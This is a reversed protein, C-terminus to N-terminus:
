ETRGTAAHTNRSGIGPHGGRPNRQLYVGDQLPRGQFHETWRDLLEQSFVGTTVNGSVVVALAGKRFMAFKALPLMLENALMVSGTARQNGVGNNWNEPFADDTSLGLFERMLARGEDNLDCLVRMSFACAEGTLANVGFQEMGSWGHISISDLKGM